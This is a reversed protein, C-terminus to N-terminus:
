EETRTLERAAEALFRVSEDPELALSRLRQLDLRARRVHQEEEELFATNGRHELYVLDPQDSYELILFPGEVGPNAGADFPVVRVTINPRTAAEVLHRLQRAMVEAGGVPRRLVAEDLIVELVPANRRSLIAQRAMRTAVMRDIEADALKETTAALVARTYEPIQLLGPVLQAEYNRLAAADAELRMVDRWTSPLRGDRPQWWNPDAGDRVLALLEERLTAPVRLFGLYASVDDAYLGRVGTEMRSIKAVSCGLARAVDACTM